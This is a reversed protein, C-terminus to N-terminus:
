NNFYLTKSYDFGRLILKFLLDSNDEFAESDIDSCIKLLIKSSNITSVTGLSEILPTSVALSPIIVRSPLYTAFKNMLNYKDTYERDFIVLCIILPIVIPSLM